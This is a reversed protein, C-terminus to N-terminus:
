KRINKFYGKYNETNLHSDTFVELVTAKDSILLNEVCKSLDETKDCVTYNLGYAEVLSKIKVQHPTTFFDLSKEMLEKDGIFRFINGGNNNMVIIKLNNDIYNNWLANSDYIFSLDGTLFVVPQQSCYAYGAATSMSGDIGSTGRNCIYTLDKRAPFLQTWRVSTSNALHLVTGTPTQKLLELTVSMDSLAKNNVFDEHLAKIHMMESLYVESFDSKTQEFPMQTLIDTAVGPVITTLCKYTDVYPMSSEIQWQEAPQHGRLFIKLQKCIVSHGITILLDPAFNGTSDKSNVRSYLSELQTIIGNGSINSLNESLVVVDPEHALQNALANLETNEPFVGFVVLKKNHKLWSEKLQQLSETSLRNIARLTKLIKPNSHMEPLATYIPERMPVNIQVPGQPYSIAIDIAQSVQRDSFDLDASVVTEVPLDFSAKIYNAYINTQRLTQGDAQDIMEAPRDATFVLLPLNQYYAEAIAPAFNLAATGSTCVLAVAESSHQVIGLAFYAASREDIISLCEMEPHATFAFILPANRSGPAIIVKKVGLRACIEPINKIGQRFHPM